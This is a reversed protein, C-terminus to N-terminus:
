LRLRVRDESQGPHDLQVDEAPEQDDEQNRERPQRVEQDDGQPDRTQRIFTEIMWKHVADRGTIMVGSLSVPDGVTLSRIVDPDIPISIQRM